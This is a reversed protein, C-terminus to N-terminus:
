IIYTHNMGFDIQDWLLQGKKKNKDLYLFKYVEYPLGKTASYKKEYEKFSSEFILPYLQITLFVLLMASLIIIIINKTLKKKQNSM